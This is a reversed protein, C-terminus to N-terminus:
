ISQLKLRTKGSYIMDFGGQIREIKRGIDFIKKLVEKNSKQHWYIEKSPCCFELAQWSRRYGSAKMAGSLLRFAVYFIMYADNNPMYFALLGVIVM